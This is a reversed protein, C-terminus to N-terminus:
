SGSKHCLDNCVLPPTTKNIIVLDYAYISDKTKGKKKLSAGAKAIAAKASLVPNTIKSGLEQSTNTLTKVVQHILNIDTPYSIQSEITTLDIFIRPPKITKTKILDKLM